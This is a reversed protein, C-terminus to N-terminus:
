HAMVVTEAFHKTLPPPSKHILRKRPWKSVKRKIARANIRNRRPPLREQQLEELLAEYWRAIAEPTQQSCEPLRCKLVHFCGTFSLRDPDLNLPQAAEFM